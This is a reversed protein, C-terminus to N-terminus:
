EPFHYAHDKRIVYRRTKGEGEIYLKLGLAVTRRDYQRLLKPFASKASGARRLHEVLDSM